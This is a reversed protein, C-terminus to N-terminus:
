SELDDVPSEPAHSDVDTRSPSDMPSAGGESGVTGQSDDPHPPVLGDGLPPTDVGREGRSL